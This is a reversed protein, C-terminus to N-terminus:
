TLEGPDDPIARLASVIEAAISLAIEGPNSAGIPLGAPGHVRDDWEVGRYALWERRLDQMRNSGLSGIYGAASGIAAQLAKGSTEVDHGIVVVADIGSLTAMMGSASGVDPVVNPRWDILVFARALADAIPGGGSIVLRPTPVLSTALQSETLTVGPDSTESRVASSLEKGSVDFTFAAPRRALLDEWLEIPLASGPIIALTVVTGEAHGTVLTEVPGLTVDVLGGSRPLSPLADTIAHDLGGGMLTGMRGGGPTIAVAEDSQGVESVVWAVHVTTGARLCSLVSLAVDYM